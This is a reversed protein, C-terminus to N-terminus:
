GRDRTCATTHLTCTTHVFSFAPAAATSGSHNQGQDRIMSRAAPRSALSSGAPGAAWFGMEPEM